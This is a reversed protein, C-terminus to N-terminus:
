FIFLSKIIFELIDGSCHYTKSKKRRRKFCHKVSLASDSSFGNLSGGSSQDLSVVELQAKVEMDVLLNQFVVGIDGGLSESVLDGSVGGVEELTELLARDLSDGKLDLFGFVSLALEVELNLLGLDVEFLSGVDVRLGVLDQLGGHRVQSLLELWDRVSSLLLGVSALLGGSVLSDQALCSVEREADELEGRPLRKLARWELGRKEYNKTQGKYYPKLFDDFYIALCFSM